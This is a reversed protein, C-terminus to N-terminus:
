DPRTHGARDHTSDNIAEKSKKKGGKSMGMKRYGETLLTKISDSM